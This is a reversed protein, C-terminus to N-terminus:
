VPAPSSVSRVLFTFNFRGRPPLLSSHACARAGGELSPHLQRRPPTRSTLHARPEPQAPVAPAEPPPSQAPPRPTSTVPRAVSRSSGGGQMMAGHGPLQLTTLALPMLQFSFKLLQLYPRAVQDRLEAVVQGTTGEGGLWGLGSTSTPRYSGSPPGPQADSPSTPSKACGRGIEWPKPKEVEHPVRDLGGNERGRVQKVSGRRNLFNTEPKQPYTRPTNVLFYHRESPCWVLGWAPTERLEAAPQEVVGERSAPCGKGAAASQSICEATKM